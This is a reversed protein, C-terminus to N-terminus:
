SRDDYAVYIFLPRLPRRSRRPLPRLPRDPVGAAAAALALDWLGVCLLSQSLDSSLYDMQTGVLPVPGSTCRQGWRNHKTRRSERPAAAAPCALPGTHGVQGSGMLPNLSQVPIVREMPVDSSRLRPAMAIAFAYRTQTLVFPLESTSVSCRPERFPFPVTIFLDSRFFFCLQLQPQLKDSSTAHCADLCHTGSRYSSGSEPFITALVLVSAVLHVAYQHKKQPSWHLATEDNSRWGRQGQQFSHPTGRRDGAGAGMGSTGLQQVPKAQQQERKGRAHGAGGVGDSLHSSFVAMSLRLGHACHSTPGRHGVVLALLPGHGLTSGRLSHPDPM